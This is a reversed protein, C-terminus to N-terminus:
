TVTITSTGSVPGEGRSNKPKIQFEHAGAPLGSKDYSKAAISAVLVTFTPQGARRHLIDFSTAHPADYELHAQGAGPSSANSITAPGPAPGGSETTIQSLADNEPTGPDFNNGWAEFWKKNQRDVKADATRLESKAENWDVKRDQATQVLEPHATLLANFQALTVPGIKLAALPPAQAARKTNARAWLSGAMRGKAVIAEQSRGTQGRIDSVEGLLIDGEELNSEILSTGRTTLDIIKAYSNDRESNADDWADKADIVATVGDILAQTDITHQALTTKGVTFSPAFHSWVAKTEQARGLTTEWFEAM